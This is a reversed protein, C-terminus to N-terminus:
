VLNTFYKVSVLVPLIELAWLYLILYFVSIKKNLFIILLRITRILYMIGIVVIGAIFYVKVPFIVTYLMMIIIIFLLLACFRYAQYIGTLYERFADREGSVNGTIYCVFHRLTVVVIILGVMAAWTIVGNIGSPIIEFYSCESYVFLGIILFSIFNKLTSQWHFFGGSDRLSSDSFGRFMFFKKVGLLIDKSTTLIISYLLVVLFIIGIIWDEHLPQKHIECGPQLHKVLSSLEKEQRQRNKEVLVFPFKTSIPLEPITLLDTSDHFTIDIISNRACVLTTDAYIFPTPKASQVTNHHVSDIFIKNTDQTVINGVMITDQQIDPCSPLMM